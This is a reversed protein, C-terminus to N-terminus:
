RAGPWTGERGPGSGGTTGARMQEHGKRGKSEQHSRSSVRVTQLADELVDDPSRKLSLTEARRELVVVGKDGGLDEGGPVEGRRPREDRLEDEALRRRGRALLGELGDLADAELGEALLSRALDHPNDTLSNSKRQVTIDPNSTDLFSHSDLDEEVLTSSRRM